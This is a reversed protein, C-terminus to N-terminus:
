EEDDRQNTVKRYIVYLAIYPWIFAVQQMSMGSEEEAEEKNEAGDFIDNIAIVALFYVAVATWIITVM